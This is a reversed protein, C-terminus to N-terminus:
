YREFFLRVISVKLFFFRARWLGLDNLEFNENSRTQYVYYYREKIEKYYRYIGRLNDMEINLDTCYECDLKFEESIHKFMYYRNDLDKVLDSLILKEYSSLLDRQQHLHFVQGYLSSFYFDHADFMRKFEDPDRDFDSLNLILTRDELRGYETARTYDLIPLYHVMIKNDRKLDSILNDIKEQIILVDQTICHMSREDRYSRVLKIIDNIKEDKRNDYIFM